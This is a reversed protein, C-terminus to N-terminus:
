RRFKLGRVWLHLNGAWGLVRHAERRGSRPSRSAATSLRPGSLHAPGPLRPQAGGPLRMPRALWPLFRAAAPHKTPWTSHLDAAKWLSRQIHCRSWVSFKSDNATREKSFRNGESNWPFISESKTLLTSSWLLCDPFVEIQVSSCRLVWHWRDTGIGSCRSIRKCKAKHFHKDGLSYFLAPIVKNVETSLLEGHRHAAAKEGSSQLFARVCHQMRFCICHRKIESCNTERLPTLLKQWLYLTHRPSCEASQTGWGNGKWCCLLNQM